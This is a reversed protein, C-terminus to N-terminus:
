HLFVLFYLGVCLALTGLVIFLKSVKTSTPSDIIASEPNAPDYLITITSHLPQPESSGIDGCITYTSDGVEFSIIPWYTYHHRHSNGMALSKRHNIITGEAQKGVTKFHQTQKLSGFGLFIFTIGIFCFILTIILDSSM